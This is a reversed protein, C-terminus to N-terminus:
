EEKRVTLFKRGIMEGIRLSELDVFIWNKILSAVRMGLSSNKYSISIKIIKSHLKQRSAPM